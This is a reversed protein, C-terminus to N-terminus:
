DRDNTKNNNSFYRPTMHNRMPPYSFQLDASQSIYANIVFIHLSIHQEDYTFSSLVNKSNLVTQCKTHACDMEGTFVSSSSMHCISWYIFVAMSRNNIIKYPFTTDFVRVIEFRIFKHFGFYIASRRLVEMSELKVESCDGMYKVLLSHSVNM